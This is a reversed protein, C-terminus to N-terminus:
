FILYSPDNKEMDNRTETYFKSDLQHEMETLRVIKNSYIEILSELEELSMDENYNPLELDIALEEM